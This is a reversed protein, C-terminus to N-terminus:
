DAPVTIAIETAVVDSLLRAPRFLAATNADGIRAAGVKSPTVTFQTVHFLSRRQCLDIGVSCNAAPDDIAARLM